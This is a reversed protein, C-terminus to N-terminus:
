GAHGWEPRRLLDIIKAAKSGERASGAKKAAKSRPAAKAKKPAVHAPKAAARAKKALKPKEAGIAQATEKEETNLTTMGTEGITTLVAIV